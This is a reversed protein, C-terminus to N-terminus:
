LAFLIQASIAPTLGPRFMHQRLGVDSCSLLSTWLPLFAGAAGRLVQYCPCRGREFQLQPGACNVSTQVLRCQRQVVVLQSRGQGLFFGLQLQPIAVTKECVPGPIQEVQVVFM